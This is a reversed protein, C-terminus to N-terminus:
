GTPLEKWPGEKSRSAKLGTPLKGTKKSKLEKIKEKTYPGIVRGDSRKLWITNDEQATPQKVQNPIHKRLRDRNLGVLALPTSIFKQLEEFNDSSNLNSPLTIFNRDTFHKFSAPQWPKEALGFQQGFSSLNCYDQNQRTHQERLKKLEDITKECVDRQTKYYENFGVGSKGNFVKENIKDRLTNLKVTTSERDSDKSSIKPGNNLRQLLKTFEVFLKCLFWAIAPALILVWLYVLPNDPEMKLDLTRNIYIGVSITAYFFGFGFFLQLFLSDEIINKGLKTAEKDLQLQRTDAKYYDSLLEKADKFKRLAAVSKALRNILKEIQKDVGPQTAILQDIQQRIWNPADEKTLVTYRQIARNGYLSVMFIETQCSPCLTSNKEVPKKCKPCKPLGDLRHQEWALKNQIEAQQRILKDRQAMGALNGLNGIQLNRNLDDLDTM